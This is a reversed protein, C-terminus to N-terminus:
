FPLMEHHPSVLSLVVSIAIGALGGGAIGWGLTVTRRSKREVSASAARILGFVFAALSVYFVIAVGSVSM